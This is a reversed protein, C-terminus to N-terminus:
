DNPNTLWDTFAQRPIPEDMWSTDPNPLAIAEKATFWGNPLPLTLKRGRRSTWHLNNARHCAEALAATITSDQVCYDVVTQRDGEAWVQTAMSGDIGATKSPLGMQHCAASLSAPYGKVCFLHFMMDVHNLALERCADLEGSEQAIVPWDFGIGNWTVLTYTQALQEFERLMLRTTATSLQDAYRGDEYKDAWVMPNELDSAYATACSIGLPAHDRWPEGSPFAKTTEIDLALFKRPTTMLFM